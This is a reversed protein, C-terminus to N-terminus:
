FRLSSKFFFSLFAAGLLVLIMPDTIQKLIRNGLTIKKASQLQNFGEKKLRLSAEQKSLGQKSSQVDQLVEEVTKTYSEM